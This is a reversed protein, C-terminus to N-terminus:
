FSVGSLGAELRTVISVSSDQSRTICYCLLFLTSPWSHSYSAHGFSVSLAIALICSYLLGM